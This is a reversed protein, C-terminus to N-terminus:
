AVAGVPRVVVPKRTRRLFPLRPALIRFAFLIGLVVAFAIPQRKDAKVLIYYHTVGAIAALYALQHLRKWRAAGLRKIMGNTSTAALPLMMLLGAMGILIFPRNVVDDITGGISLSRDFVFYTSLHLTGYFFAYLGLTRRFHSLFNWGSILRLPTVTLSLFLFVLTLMGTTQIAFSVPNAGLQHRYADWVLLALPVAANVVLVFKAFRPDKM